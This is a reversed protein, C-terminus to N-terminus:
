TYPTLHWFIVVRTTHIQSNDKKNKKNKMDGTVAGSKRKKPNTESTTEIQFNQMGNSSEDFSHFPQPHSDMIPATSHIYNNNHNYYQNHPHNNNHNPFADMMASYVSMMMNHSNVNTSNQHNHTPQPDIHSSNPAVSSPQQRYPQQQQQPPSSPLPPSTRM